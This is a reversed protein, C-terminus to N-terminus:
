RNAKSAVRRQRTASAEAEGRKGGGARALILKDAVCRWREAITVQTVRGTLLGKRRVEGSDGRRCGGEKIM